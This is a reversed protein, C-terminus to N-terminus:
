KGGLGLGPIMSIEGKEAWVVLLIDVVVGSLFGVDKRLRGCSNRWSINAYEAGGEGLVKMNMSDM